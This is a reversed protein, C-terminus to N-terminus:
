WHKTLNDARIAEATVSNEYFLEFRLNQSTVAKLPNDVRRAWHDLTLVLNQSRQANVALYPATTKSPGFTLGAKEFFRVADTNARVASWFNERWSAYLTGSLRYAASRGNDTGLSLLLDISKLKQAANAPAAGEWLSLISVTDDRAEAITRGFIKKAAEAADGTLAPTGGYVKFANMPSVQFKATEALAVEVDQAIAADMAAGARAVGGRGVGIAQEVQFATPPRAVASGGWVAALEEDSLTAIKQAENLFGREVLKEEVGVMAGRATSWFQKAAAVARGALAGSVLDVPDITPSELAPEPKYYKTTDGHVKGTTDVFYDWGFVEGYNHQKTSHRIEIHYGIIENRFQMLKALPNNQPAATPDFVKITIVNIGISGGNTRYSILVKEFKTLERKTIGKLKTILNANTTPEGLRFSLSGEFWTTTTDDKYIWGEIRPTDGPTIRKKLGRLVGTGSM